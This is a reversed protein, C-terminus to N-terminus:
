LNLVRDLIGLQFLKFPIEERGVLKWHRYVRSRVAEYIDTFYYIVELSFEAM